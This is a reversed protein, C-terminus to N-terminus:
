LICICSIQDRLSRTAIYKSQFREGLVARQCYNFTWLSEHLAFSCVSRERKEILVKYRTWIMWLWSVFIKKNPIKKTSPFYDETVDSM